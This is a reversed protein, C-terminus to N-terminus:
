HAGGETHSEKAHPKKEGHSDKEEGHGGGHHGASIAEDTNWVRTMYRVSPVNNIEELLQYTREKEFKKSVASEKDNMDGFVIAKTPCTLECAPKIDGDKLRRKELVAKSKGEQIKHICFTCKEMVGRSRVTVEPNLAMNLPAEVKSYNFWNFRRVKYPCNNACYRTGVCRNYSMDNTGESSHVTALVPCVTECPANDCHQCMVPQFVVRPAKPDGSYYRDIRIWHMERGNIVHKKGVVPINNESQCAIVCASCGTCKSLDVSMGWKHGTYKHKSWLSFIKHRHIGAAEDKKFEDYSAETVIQRSEMAHHGQPNALEMKKSTKKVTATLASTLGNTIFPYANQGVDECVKGAGKRGYGVALGLTEADQGPQINVPIEITYGDKSLEVIDGQSLKHHEAYDMSVSLYNDWVIKSVSDPLEQLWSVNALKGDGMSTKKYIVLEEGKSEKFRAAFSGSFIRSPKVSNKFESLDWVGKQLLEVWFTNFDAFGSKSKNANYRSEWTAKVVDYWTESKGSWKLLSQEFARTKYLPSITPQGISYVNKFSEFENWKEMSHDDPLVWHSVSGTEDNKDGTYVVTSVKSLAARLKAQDGYTYAPNSDHIILTKVVGSNMKKILTEISSENGRYSAYPAQSYDITEGDNGLSSNIYHVAKQIEIYDASKSQVGFGMVISKGKNKKLEHAAHKAQELAGESLKKIGAYRSAASAYSSTGGLNSIVACLFSLYESPKLMVRQDANTGTLSLLSEVQTLKVPVEKLEVDRRIGWEKQLQLSGYDTALFDTGVSLVYNANLLRYRPLEKVEGGLVSFSKKFAEYGMPSWEFYEGSNASTFSSILKRSSESPNSGSLVYVGGNKFKKALETDVKEWDTNIVDKNTRKPNLLNQVPGTLRDPDYLSLIHAQGRVTLAEGIGPFFENGEVKIPRGERTRVVLGYVDGGEQYTSAYLNSVGPVLGDPRKVYPVIKQIPRRVCGFSTLAMSAGMLKLFDRRAWGSQAGDDLPSAKFEREALENFQPDQRWQDLSLWHKNKIEKNSESM